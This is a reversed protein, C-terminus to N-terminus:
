KVVGRAMRELDSSVEQYTIRVFGQPAQISYGGITKPGDGYLGFELKHIYPINNTVYITDGIKYKSLERSGRAIAEVGSKDDGYEAGDIMNLGVAWRNKATGQDAPTKIIAKTDLSLGVHRAVAEGNGKAKAIIKSIDIGLTAVNARIM